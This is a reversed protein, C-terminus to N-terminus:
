AAATRRRRLVAGLGGLGSLMLWVGAPLPTPVVNTYGGAIRYSAAVGNVYTSSLLRLFDADGSLDGDLRFAYDLSGAAYFGLVSLSRGSQITGLGGFSLASGGLDIASDGTLSLATFSQGNAGAAHALQLTGGNLNLASAASLRDAGDLVLTGGNLMTGGSYTSSGSLTVTGSNVQVSGFNSISGAYLFQNGAGPTMALTNSGGVGGNISGLISAGGGTINLTNNGAGMHIAMGSSSGDILGANNITDNNGGSQVAAAVFGGGRLTAGSNNNITVTFANAAGEVAIASGSDGRILGGAQNTVTANAYLGERTTSTIDNGALTIGRGVSTTNGSAVLGEITGSNVISGGGVTIGESSVGVANLSRIFGTNNLNLVGDVDIGDGDGTVGNGIITGNNFITATQLGSFGDLNIGSGNSGRITAGIENTVNTTFAINTAPGGTIAHRGGEILGSGTNFISIGNNAQIDVGDSSSGTSTTSRIIGANNVVGNVGPRVADAEQARLIGTSYNNITNAGSQIANFDVAQSGGALPNLSIMSGYNHLTVSAPSVNMQIVDGNASQMLATSNLISGNNIVLASVGANDRIVRGTGTQLISGFNNLTASNGSITVANTSGSVSLTGTATVTGTQNSGTGLTQATSSSGSITFDAAVAQGGLMALALGVAARVGRNSFVASSPKPCLCLSSM